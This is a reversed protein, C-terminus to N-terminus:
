GGLVAELQGRVAEVSLTREIHARGAVSLRLWLADDRLLRLVQAAFGDADQGVLLHVGDQLGMGEAGVPTAVVPLGYAMSQGVKGKMGAGYRLPAISVRHQQYLPVLDPVFGLVEVGPIAGLALVENGANAGVIRFVLDPVEERLRPFVREVFWCVADGNPAHWFGGVFLLGRRREPGSPPQQPMEFVNPLVEVVAEPVLDLLAAKEEVTVALTVDAAAACSIEVARKREAAERLEPDGRLEAERLMRLGHFDVMDYAIRTAPCRSRVLPLFEAAVDPFSLFAWDLYRGAETLFRDVEEIGYLIQSVGAKRLAEEYRARGEQSGLVGPQFDRGACTGFVMSWGAKGMMDILTKLRLGGSGQDFLPLIDAVVLIEGRRRDPVVARNPAFPVTVHRATLEPAPTPTQPTVAISPGRRMGGFWQRVGRMTARMPGTMRWSRSAYMAALAKQHSALENRLNDRELLLLALERRLLAERAKVQHRSKNKSETMATSLTEETRILHVLKSGGKRDVTNVCNHLMLGRLWAATRVPLHSPSWTTARQNKPM